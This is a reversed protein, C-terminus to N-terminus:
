NMCFLVLTYFCMNKQFIMEQSSASGDQLSPVSLNGSWFNLSQWLYISVDEFTQVSNWDMWYNNLHKPKSWLPPSVLQRVKKGVAM